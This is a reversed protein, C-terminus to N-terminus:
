VADSDIPGAGSDMADVKSPEEFGSVERISSGTATAIRSMVNAHFREPVMVVLVCMAPREASATWRHPLSPDFHLSDGPHLSYSQGAVEAEICGEEVLIVMEGQFQWAETGEMGAGVSPQVCVRWVDLKGGPILRVLHEIEGRDDITLNARADRRLVAVHEAVDDEALLESPRRELGGAVKLLVTITPVTQLNEIKHITSASVGSRDGLQQLTLGAEDRWSRIRSAIRKLDDDM